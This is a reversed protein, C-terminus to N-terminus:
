LNRFRFARASTMRMYQGEELKCTIVNLRQKKDAVLLSGFLLILQKKIYKLYEWFSTIIERGFM